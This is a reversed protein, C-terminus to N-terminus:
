HMRHKRTATGVVGFGLCFLLAASPEPIANESGARLAAAKVLLSRNGDAAAVQWDITGSANIQALVDVQAQINELYFFFFFRDSGDTTAQQFPDASSGLNITAIDDIGCEIDFLLFTLTADNVTDTGPDFGGTDCYWLFCDGDDTTIDLTGSVPSGETAM